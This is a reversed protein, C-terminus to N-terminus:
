CYKDSNQLPPLPRPELMCYSVVDWVASRIRSYIDGVSLQGACWIGIRFLPPM